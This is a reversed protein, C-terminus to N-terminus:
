CIFIPSPNTYCHILFRYKSNFFDVTKDQERDTTKTITGNLPLLSILFQSPFATPMNKSPNDPNSDGIKNFTTVIIDRVARFTSLAKIKFFIIARGLLSYPPFSKCKHTTM